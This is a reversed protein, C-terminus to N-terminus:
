LMEVAVGVAGPEVGPPAEEAPVPGHAPILLSLLAGIGVALAMWGM